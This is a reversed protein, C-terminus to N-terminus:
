IFFSDMKQIETKSLGCLECTDDVFHHVASRSQVFGCKDCIKACPQAKYAYTWYYSDSEKPKRWQHKLRLTGNARQDAYTERMEGCHKCVCVDWDHEANKKIGCQTCVKECSNPSFYEWTHCKSYIDMVKGCLSCKCGELVHKATQSAGCQRCKGKCLDWDHQENRLKGCVTCKCGNWNHQKDRKEGCRECICGNWKHSLLKCILGVGVGGFFIIERHLKM